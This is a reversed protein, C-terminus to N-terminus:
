PSWFSWLEAPLVPSIAQLDRLTDVTKETSSWYLVFFLYINNFHAFGFGLTLVFLLLPVSFVFFLISGINMFHIYQIKLDACGLVSLFNLYSSHALTAMLSATIFKKWTKCSCATFFGLALLILCIYIYTHFFEDVGM